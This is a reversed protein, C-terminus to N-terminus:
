LSKFFFIVGGELGDTHYVFKEERLFTLLVGGTAGAPILPRAGGAVGKPNLEKKIGLIPHLNFPSRKVLQTLATRTFKHNFPFSQALRSNLGDYPDYGAWTESRCYRLLSSVAQECDDNM